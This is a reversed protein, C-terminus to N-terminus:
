ELAKESESGVLVLVDRREVEVGVHLQQAVLRRFTAALDVVEEFRPEAKGFLHHLQQLYQQCVVPRERNLIQEVMGPQGLQLADWWELLEVAVLLHLHDAVDLM